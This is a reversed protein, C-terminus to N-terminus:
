LQESYCQSKVLLVYLPLASEWLLFFESGTLSAEVGFLCLLKQVYRQWVNARYSLRQGKERRQPRQM